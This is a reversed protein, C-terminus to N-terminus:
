YLLSIYYHPASRAVNRYVFLNYGKVVPNQAFFINVIQCDCLSVAAAILSSETAANGYLWKIRM